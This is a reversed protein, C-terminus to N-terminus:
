ELSITRRVLGGGSPELTTIHDVSHQLLYQRADEIHAGVQAVSHSDDGFCFGIGLERAADVIWPAPYPRGLGKRYGATNIDLIAGTDRLVELAEFAARRIPPTAASAEDPFRMRVLDFHGVVEPRLAATMEATTQYFRVALKEAGGCIELAKEYEEPIYDIIHGAVFHVSGVIYDMSFRERFASMVQIYRDEPVVEIEFGKLLAIRDAFQDRLRDLRAMHAEFLRDLTDVNWGLELEERFLHRAEVRPAHETVGFIRFGRAAAAEVIEELGSTAHDCAERSHGGHLSVMWAPSSSLSM